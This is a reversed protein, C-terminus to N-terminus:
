AKEKRQTGIPTSFQLALDWPFYIWTSQGVETAFSDVLPKGIPKTFVAGFHARPLLVRLAKITEGTDVLDDVVVWGDGDGAETPFKVLELGKAESPSGDGSGYRVPSVTEIVRINLERAVIAAPVLGGRTVAILGKWPGGEALKGALVKAERHMEDWSVIFLQPDSTM